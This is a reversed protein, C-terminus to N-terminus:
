ATQHRDWTNFDLVTERVRWTGLLAQSVYQPLHQATDPYLKPLARNGKNRVKFRGRTRARIELMKRCSELEATEEKHNSLYARVSRDPHIVIIGLVKHGETGKDYGVAEIIIPIEQAESKAVAQKFHAEADKLRTESFSYADWTSGYSSERVPEYAILECVAPLGLSDGTPLWPAVFRKAGATLDMELAQQISM